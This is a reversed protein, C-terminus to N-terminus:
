FWNDYLLAQENIANILNKLGGQYAESIDGGMTFGFIPNKFQYCSYSKVSFSGGRLKCTAQLQVCEGQDQTQNYDSIEVTLRTKAGPDIAINSQALSAALVASIREAVAESNGVEQNIKRKNSVALDIIRPTLSKMVIVPLDTSKIVPVEKPGVSVCGSLNITLLGLILFSGLNKM